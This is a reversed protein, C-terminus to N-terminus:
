QTLTAKASLIAQQIKDTNKGGGQALLASYNGARPAGSFHLLIEKGLRSLQTRCEM